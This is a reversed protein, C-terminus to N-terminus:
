YLCHTQIPHMHPEVFTCTPNAILRTSTAAMATEVAAMTLPKSLANHAEHHLCPPKAERHSHPPAMAIHYRSLSPTPQHSPTHLTIVDYHHKLPPSLRLQQPLSHHPLPSFTTTRQFLQGHPVCPIYNRPSPIHSRQHM